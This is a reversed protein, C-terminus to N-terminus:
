APTHDTHMHFARWHGCLLFLRQGVCIFYSITQQEHSLFLNLNDQIVHEVM